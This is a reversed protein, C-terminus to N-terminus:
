WGATDQMSRSWSVVNKSILVIGTTGEITQGMIARIGDSISQPTNSCLAVHRGELDEGTFLRLTEYDKEALGSTILLVNFRGGASNAILKRLARADFKLRMDVLIRRGDQLSLMADAGHLSRGQPSATDIEFLDNLLLRAQQLHTRALNEFHVHEFYRQAARQNAPTPDQAAEIAAATAVEDLEKTTLVQTAQDVVPSIVDELMEVEHEGSKIRSPIVGALALVIFLMSAAVFATTAAGDSGRYIAFGAFGAMFAGVTASTWRLRRSLHVMQRLRATEPEQPSDEPM